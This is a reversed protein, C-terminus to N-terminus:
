QPAANLAAVSARLPRGPVDAHLAIRRPADPELHIFNDDPVFGEAEVAVAHAFRNTTLTM